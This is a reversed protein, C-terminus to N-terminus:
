PLRAIVRTGHGPVSQLVLSGGIEEVREKMFRLGFGGWTSQRDEKGRIGAGNDSVVLEIGGARRMVAVEAERAGSHRKVNLLAERAVQYICDRTGPPLSALRCGNTFRVTMGPHAFHRILETMSRPDEVPRTEPELISDIVARLERVAQLASSRAVRTLTQKKLESRTTELGNIAFVISTLTQGFADHLHRAIRRRESALVEEAIAASVSAVQAVDQLRDIDKEDLRHPVNSVVALCGEAEQLRFPVAAVARAGARAVAALSQGERRVDHCHFPGRIRLHRLLARIAIGPLGPKGGEREVLLTRHGTMRPLLLTGVARDANTVRQAETAAHRLTARTATVDRENRKPLLAFARLPGLATEHRM